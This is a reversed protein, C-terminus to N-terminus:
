ARKVEVDENVSVSKFREPDTKLRGFVTVPSAPRPKEGTSSPTPGFFICFANGQNWYGLEGIEVEAKTEGEGAELSVPFYIEDGWTRAQGFIPLEKWIKEAMENEYLEAEAELGGAEIIIKKAM